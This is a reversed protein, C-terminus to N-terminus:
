QPKIPWIPNAPDTTNEPLDRLAQRYAAWAAQDVPADSVQTWDTESLLQDRLKRMIVWQDVAQQPEHDGELVYQTDEDYQSGVFKPPCSVVKVFEDNAKEFVSYLM